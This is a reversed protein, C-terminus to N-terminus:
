CKRPKTKKCERTKRPEEVDFVVSYKDREAMFTVRKIKGSPPPGPLLLPGIEKGLIPSQDVFHDPNEDTIVPSPMDATVDFYVTIPDDKTLPRPPGLGKELNHNSSAKVQELISHIALEALKTNENM